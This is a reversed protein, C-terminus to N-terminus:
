ITLIGSPPNCSAYVPNSEIDHLGVRQEPLYDECEMALHGSQEGRVQENNGVNIEV